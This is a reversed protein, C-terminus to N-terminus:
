FFRLICILIFVACIVTGIASYTSYENADQSCMATFKPILIDETSVVNGAKDYSNRKITTKTNLKYAISLFLTILFGGVFFGWLGKFVGMKYIIGLAAMIGVPTTIFTNASVGLKDFFVVLTDAVALAKGKFTDVDMNALAQVTEKDVTKTQLKAQKKLGEFVANREDQSMQMLTEQSIVTDTAAAFVPSSMLMAAVVGLMIFRKM